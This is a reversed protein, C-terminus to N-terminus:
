SSGHQWGCNGGVAGGRFRQLARADGRRRELEARDTARGWTRSHLLNTMAFGNTATNCSWSSITGKAVRTGEADYLYGTMTGGMLLSQVACIRGEADYLYQNPGSCQQTSQNYSDCVINGAADYLPPLGAVVSQVQNNANYTVSSGPPVPANGNDIGSFNEGTRNGFNDYSWTAQLGQYASGSTSAAATLRNLSDYGNAMSWTGTVSDFYSLVNGAPDYGGSPSSCGSSPSASICFSYPTTPSGPNVVVSQTVQPAAAYYANGAQNAAVLVTGVGTITLTSDSFTGPGSIVSFTVVLGSSASASMTIPSVGFTVPSSPPTFTITQTGSAPSITVSTSGNASANGSDGSYNGAITYTGAAVNSLSSVSCSGTSLTCSTWSNNNYTFTVAGTPSSGTVTATCTTSSGYTFTEPSCSISVNSATLGSGVVRIRANYNDAFYINQGADIAMGAPINLQASTAPGGDGSFGATGNGAVTSIIGTSANVKRLVNNETDAIYINGASDVMVSDPFSLEASTALGGDGSYGQAGNGAITYINGVLPTANSNELRILGAAPAGGEYVVRVVNNFTDAIYISGASDLAIDTQNSLEASIAPGGDGSYAAVGNGAITSIVGTSATVERIVNNLSDAIYIAKGAGDVKADYPFNLQASTALGGDGSYGQVTNGAIAYINGVVPTVNSNELRILGAAAAGGEYVVRVANNGLDAIYIDGASDMAVSPAYLEANIAPGGDGSFGQGEDGAITSIVGTSATVKRIASDAIYINGASDVAVEGPWNLEANIALGDDGSYAEIGNGAITNIIGSPTAASVTLNFTATATANNADKVTVTYTTTSSAATLTGTVAGTSSAMSLGSPLAPSLSYSLPATGGSGTVPTFASVATNVTLNTAPIAMTATVAGNVTLTFTATATANNADKVTVTYTTTSSTATPTGTFAGTSSSLSLGSPLTPSVSYSLPSTGGSGIVPTFSTAATNVTLNTTPIATTASVAANVTLNFTATATANNADKVTATYTTTSITVTPTGTIAGTSLAMSLGSPLTPSVSYSLPATGGSGTVPTFNASSQNVTLTTSTIVTTATVAGNVKLTFTATASANNADKVTVTYTTTSSTATPTGTIAGTSSAM